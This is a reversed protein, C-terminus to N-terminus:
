RLLDAYPDMAAQGQMRLTSDAAEVIEPPFTDIGGVVIELMCEQYLEKGLTVPNFCTDHFLGKAIPSLDTSNKPTRYGLKSWAKILPNM